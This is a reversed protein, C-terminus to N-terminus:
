GTQEEMIMIHWCCKYWQIKRLNPDVQKNQRSLNIYNTKLSNINQMFNKTMIKMILSAEIHSM